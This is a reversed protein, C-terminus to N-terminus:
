MFVNPGPVFLHRWPMTSHGMALCLRAGIKGQAKPVRTLEIKAVAQIEHDSITARSVVLKAMHEYAM